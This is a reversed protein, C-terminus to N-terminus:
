FTKRNRLGLQERYTDRNKFYEEDSIKTQDVRGPITGNSTGEGIGRAVNSKFLNGYEAKEKMEEIAQAPTKLVEMPSGDEGIETVAVRPVLRGTKEGRENIEDVVKTRPSLLSIFQSPNYADHQAAADLIARERTSSEFLNKYHDAQQKTEGLQKEFLEQKKKAEHAAQQERTRLQSQLNNLEGELESRQQETLSKNELLQEYRREAAELQAQAKKNRKVVIQNVEEQTFVRGKDDGTGDGEGPDNAPDDAPDDAPDNDRPIYSSKFLVCSMFSKPM